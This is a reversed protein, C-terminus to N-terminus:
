TATLFFSRALIAGQMSAIACENSRKRSLILQQAFVIQDVHLAGHYRHVGAPQIAHLDIRAV